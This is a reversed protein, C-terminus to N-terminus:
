THNDACATISVKQIHCTQRILLEPTSSSAKLLGLLPMSASEAWGRETSSPAFSGCGVSCRKTSSTGLCISRVPFKSEKETTTSGSGPLRFDFDDQRHDSAVRQISKSRRRGVQDRLPVGKCRGTRHKPSPILIHQVSGPVFHFVPKLIREPVCAV